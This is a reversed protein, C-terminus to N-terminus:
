AAQSDQYVLTGLPLGSTISTNELAQFPMTQLIANDSVSKAADSFKIKPLVIAVFDSTDTSDVTLVLLVTVESETLFLDREVEDEFLATM